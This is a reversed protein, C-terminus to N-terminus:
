HHDQQSRRWDAYERQEEASRKSLDMHQRHTDHEWQNYYVTEQSRCAIMAVPSTMAVAFLLPAFKRFLPRMAM